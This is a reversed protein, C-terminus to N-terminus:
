RGCCEKFKKNMGYCCPDNRGPRWMGACIKSYAQAKKLQIANMERAEDGELYIEGHEYARDGRNM